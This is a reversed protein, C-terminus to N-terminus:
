GAAVRAIRPQPGAPAGAQALEPYAAAIMAAAIATFAKQWVAVAREDAELVVRLTFVLAEGVFDYHRAEVGYDVHRRALDCLIPRLADTEHLRAVVVGLTSVMKQGQEGMDSHFLPQVEPAILFLQDYFTEAFRVPDGSVKRFSTRLVDVDEDSLMM